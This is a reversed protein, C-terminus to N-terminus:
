PQYGYTAFTGQYMKQIHQKQAETLMDAAPRRDARATNKTFPLKEVLTVDFKRELEALDDRLYEYRIVFDPRKRDFLYADNLPPRRLTLDLFHELPKDTGSRLHFAMSVVQEYPHRCMTVLYSRDVFEDGTRKRIAAPTIHNIFKAGLRQYLRGRKLGFYRRPVVGDKMYQDFRRRYDTEFRTWWAWNVPFHGGQKWRILEDEELLPTVIDKDTANCSWAVEVSTGATKKPKVFLIKREALYIM